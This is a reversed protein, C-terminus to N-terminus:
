LTAYFADKIHEIQTKRNKILISIIDFRVERDINNEKIYADAAKVLHKQKKRNVADEPKEFYNDTRTKVEAIVITEGERAVIDIETKRFTWNTEIIAYGLGALYKVAKKEGKSGTVNHSAM